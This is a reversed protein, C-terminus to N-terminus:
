SPEGAMTVDGEPLKLGETEKSGPENVVWWGIMVWDCGGGARFRVPEGNEKDDDHGVSVCRARLGWRWFELKV